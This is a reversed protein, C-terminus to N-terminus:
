CGARLGVDVGCCVVIFGEANAQVVWEAGDYGGACSCGTAGGGECGLGMGRAVV